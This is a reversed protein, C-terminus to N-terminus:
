TGGDKWLIDVDVDVEVHTDFLCLHHLGPQEPERHNLHAASVHSFCHM